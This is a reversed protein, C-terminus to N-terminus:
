FHISQLQLSQFPASAFTLPMLLAEKKERDPNYTIIEKESTTYTYIGTRDDFALNRDDFGERTRLTTLWAEESLGGIEWRRIEPDGCVM